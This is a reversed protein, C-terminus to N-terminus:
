KSLNKPSNIKAIDEGNVYGLKRLRNELMEKLVGSVKLLKGDSHSSIRQSIQTLCLPGEVEYLIKLIILSDSINDNSWLYM